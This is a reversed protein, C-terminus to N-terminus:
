RHAAPATTARAPRRPLPMRRVPPRWRHRAPLGALEIVAFGEDDGIALLSGAAALCRVASRRPVTLVCAGTVPDWVRVTHDGGGSALLLRNGPGTTFTVSGVWSTHGALPRGFTAGSRPDWVRVTQDESASALLTKGAGAGRLTGFAVSRVPATHGALPGHHAAAGAAPDWLRVMGDGGGSALLLEGHKGTTFAVAGVWGHHGALAEGVPSGDRPDWLRVTQDESASALLTKGPGGEPGQEKMTGFAVANVPGTHGALPECVPVGAVPDWVQV